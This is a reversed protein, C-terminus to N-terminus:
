PSDKTLSLARLRRQTRWGLPIPLNALCPTSIISPGCDATGPVDHNNVPEIRAKLRRGVQRDRPDAATAECPFLISLNAVIRPM